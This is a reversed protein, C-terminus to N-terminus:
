AGAGRARRREEALARYKEIAAQLRRMIDEHRALDAAREEPTKKKRKM